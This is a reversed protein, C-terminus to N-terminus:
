QVLKDQPMLGDFWLLVRSDNRCLQFVFNKRNAEAILILANLKWVEDDAEQAAKFAEQGYENSKDFNKLQQHCRGLEHNLWALELFDKTMPSREEFRRWNHRWILDGFVCQNM